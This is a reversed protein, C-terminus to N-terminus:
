LTRGEESNMICVHALSETSTTSTPTPLAPKGGGNSVWISTFKSSPVWNKKGGYFEGVEDYPKSVSANM